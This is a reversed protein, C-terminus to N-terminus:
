PNGGDGCSEALETVDDTDLLFWVASRAYREMLAFVRAKREDPNM